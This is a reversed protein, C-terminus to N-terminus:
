DPFAQQWACSNTHIYDGFATNCEFVIFINQCDCVFFDDKIEVKSKM